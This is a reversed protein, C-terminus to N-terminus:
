IWVVNSSLGVYADGSRSFMLDSIFTEMTSVTHATHLVVIFCVGGSFTMQHIVGAKGDRQMFWATVLRALIMVISHLRCNLQRSCYGSFQDVSQTDKHFRSTWYRSWRIRSQTLKIWEVSEWMKKFIQKVIVTTDAGQRRTLIKQSLLIEWVLLTDEHM